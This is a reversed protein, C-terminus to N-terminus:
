LAMYEKITCYLAKCKCMMVTKSNKKQKVQKMSKYLHMDIGTQGEGRRRGGREEGESGGEERWEEGESRKEEEEEGECRREEDGGRKRREEEGRREEGM